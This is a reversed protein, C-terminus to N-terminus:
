FSYECLSIAPNALSKKASGPFFGGGQQRLALSKSASSRFFIRLYPKQAQSYLKKALTVSSGSAGRARL